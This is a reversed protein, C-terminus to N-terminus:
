SLLNSVFCIIMSETTYTDVSYWCIAYLLWKESAPLKM